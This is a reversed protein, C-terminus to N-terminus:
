SKGRNKIIFEQMKKNEMQLKEIEALKASMAAKEKALRTEEEISASLEENEKKLRALHADVDKRSGEIDKRVARIGAKSNARQELGQQVRDSHFRGTQKDNDYATRLTSKTNLFVLARPLCLVSALVGGLSVIQVIPAAVVNFFFGPAFAIVQGTTTRGGNGEAGTLVMGQMLNLVIGVGCVWMFFIFPEKVDADEEHIHDLQASGLLIFAVVIGVINIWFGLFYVPPNSAMAVNSAWILDILCGIWLECNVNRPHLVYPFVGHVIEKPFFLYALVVILVGIMLANSTYESRSDSM